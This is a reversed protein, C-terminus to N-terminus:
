NEEIYLPSTMMETNTTEILLLFNDKIQFVKFFFLYIIYDGTIIPLDLRFPISKLIAQFIKLVSCNIYFLKYLFFFSCQVQTYM